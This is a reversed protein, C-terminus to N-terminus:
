SSTPAGEAVRKRMLSVPFTNGSPYTVSKRKIVEYGLRAYYDPLFGAEICELWVERAGAQRLHAECAQMVQGGLNRGRCARSIALTKLWWNRAPGVVEAWDHDEEFALTVIGALRGELRAAFLEGRAQRAAFEEPPLARVWQRVGKARLWAVVELYVGHAAGIEGTTVPGFEM